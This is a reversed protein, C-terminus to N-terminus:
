KAINKFRYYGYASVTDYEFYRTGSVGNEGDATSELVAIKGSATKGVYIMVHGSKLLIDGPLAASASIKEWSSSKLLSSTALYGLNYSDLTNYANYVFGSCDIGKSTCNKRTKDLYTVTGELESSKIGNKSILSIWAKDDYRNSGANAAYPIGQYTVGKEFLSYLSSSGKNIMERNSNYSGSGARWTHFSVPSTWLVTAMQKAKLLVTSRNSYEKASIKGTLFAGALTSEYDIGTYAAYSSTSQSPTPSTNEQVQTFRFRQASSYNANYLHVNNGNHSYAGNVDLYYSPNLKSQIYYYGNGASILRFLQASSYNITYLQVNQNDCPIGDSVDIALGSNVDVFYYYGSGYYRAEFQQNKVNAAQWIQLNAGAYTNGGDVDLVSGTACAPSIYYKKGSTLPQSYSTKVSGARWVAYMTVNGSISVYQNPYFSPSSANKSTSWGLFSYGSRTPITSSIAFSSNKKVTQSAPTNTGGNANYTMKYTPTSQTEKVTITGTNTGSLSGSIKSQIKWSGAKNLTIRIWNNDCNKYTYTYACSGDPRYVSLTMNCTGTGYTKYLNDNADHLFGWIYVTTGKTFTNTESKKAQSWSYGSGKVSAFVDNYTARSSNNTTGKYTCYDLCVWGSKTGNTAKISSTYGWSGNIKSVYFKTGKAAAGVKSYSTGAGTRINSGSNSAIEYNGTKYSAANVLFTFTGLITIIVLAIAIIKKIM